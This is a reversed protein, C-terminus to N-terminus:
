NRMLLDVCMWGLGHKEGGRSQQQYIKSPVTVIVHRVGSSRQGSIEIFLSYPWSSGLGYMAASIAGKLGGAAKM